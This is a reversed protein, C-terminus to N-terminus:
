HATDSPPTAPRDTFAADEPMAHVPRGPPAKLPPPAPKPSGLLLLLVVTLLIVLWFGAIVRNRPKAASGAAADRSRRRANRFVNFALIGGCFAITLYTRLDYAM